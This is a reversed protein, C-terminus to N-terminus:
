SCVCFGGQHLSDGAARPRRPPARLLKFVAASPPDIYWVSLSVWGPTTSPWCRSPQTPAWWSRCTSPTRCGGRWCSLAWTTACCCRWRQPCCRAHSHPDISPQPNLRVGWHTAGATAALMATAGAGASCAAVPTHPLTGPESRSTELKKTGRQRTGLKRRCCDAGRRKYQHM